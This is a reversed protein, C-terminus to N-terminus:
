LHTKYLYSMPSNTNIQTLKPNSNNNSNDYHMVRWLQRSHVKKTRFLPVISQLMIEAFRM